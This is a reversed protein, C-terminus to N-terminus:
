RGEPLSALQVVPDALEQTAEVTAVFDAIRERTWRHDNNLHVIVAQICHFTSRFNRSVDYDLGCLPCPVEVHKWHLWVQAKSQADATYANRQTTDLAGIAEAAAGLACSTQDDPDYVTHFAQRRLMAGLRIAESIKM